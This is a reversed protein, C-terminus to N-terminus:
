SSSLPYGIPILSAEDGPGREWSNINFSHSPADWKAKWQQMHWHASYVGCVTCVSAYLNHPGKERLYFINNYLM